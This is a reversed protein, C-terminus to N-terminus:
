SFINESSDFSGFSQISLLHVGVICGSLEGASSVKSKDM